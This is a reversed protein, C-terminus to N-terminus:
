RGARAELDDPGHLDQGCRCVRLDTGGGDPWHHCRPQLLPNPLKQRRRCCTCSKCMSSDQALEGEKFINRLHKTIVSRDVGFLEALAKQTLWATEDKFFVEVKVAGDPATYLLFQNQSNM